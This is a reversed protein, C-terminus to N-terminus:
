EALILWYQRNDPRRLGQTTKGTLLAAGQRWCMLDGM